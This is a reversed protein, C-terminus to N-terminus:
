KNLITEIREIIESIASYRVRMKVGDLSSYKTSFLFVKISNRENKIEELLERLKTEM